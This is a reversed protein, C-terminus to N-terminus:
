VGTAENFTVVKLEKITPTRDFKELIDMALARSTFARIELMDGPRRWLGKGAYYELVPAKCGTDTVMIRTRKILYLNM